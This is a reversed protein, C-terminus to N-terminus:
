RSGIGVRLSRGAAPFYYVVSPDSPDAYGTTACARDLLNHGEVWGRVGGPLPASLRADLRRWGPLRGSNADDLWMGRVTVYEAEGAGYFGRAPTRKVPPPPHPPTRSSAPLIPFAAAACSGAHVTV